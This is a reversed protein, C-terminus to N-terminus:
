FGFLPRRMAIPLCVPMLRRLEIPQHVLIEDLRSSFLLLLVGNATWETVNHTNIDVLDSGASMHTREDSENNSVDLHFVGATNVRTAVCQYLSVLLRRLGCPSILHTDSSSLVAHSTPGAPSGQTSGLHPGQQHRLVCCVSSAAKAAVHGCPCPLVPPPHRHVHKAHERCVCVGKENLYKGHGFSRHLRCGRLLCTAALWLHWPRFAYRYADM